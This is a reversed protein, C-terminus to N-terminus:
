ESGGRQWLVVYAQDPMNNRYSTLDQEERSMKRRHSDLVKMTGNEFVAMTMTTVFPDSYDIAMVLKIITM